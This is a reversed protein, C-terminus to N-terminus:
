CWLQQSSLGSRAWVTTGCYPWVEIPRVDVLRVEVLRAEVLNLFITLSRSHGHDMELAAFRRRRANGRRDIRPNSDWARRTVEANPAGSPPV